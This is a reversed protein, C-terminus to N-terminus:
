ISVYNEDMEISSDVNRILSLINDDMYNQVESERSLAISNDGYAYTLDLGVFYWVLNLNPFRPARKLKIYVIICM